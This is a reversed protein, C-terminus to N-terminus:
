LKYGVYIGASFGTVLAAGLAWWAPQWDKASARFSANEAKLRTEVDQLRKMEVDLKGFVEDPIFYGPPLTLEVGKPTTGAIGSKLHVIEDDATAHPELAVLLGVLVAARRRALM